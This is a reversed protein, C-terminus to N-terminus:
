AFSLLEIGRGAAAWPIILFPTFTMGTPMPLLKSGSSSLAIALSELVTKGCSATSGSLLATLFAALGEGV